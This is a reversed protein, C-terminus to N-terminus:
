PKTAKLTQQIRSTEIASELNTFFFHFFHHLQKCSNSKLSAQQTHSRISKEESDPTYFSPTDAANETESIKASDEATRFRVIEAEIITLLWISNAAAAIKPHVKVQWKKDFSILKELTYGFFNSQLLAQYWQTEQLCKKMMLRCINFKSQPTVPKDNVWNVIQTGKKNM